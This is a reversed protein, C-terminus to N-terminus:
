TNAERRRQIIKEARKRRAENYEDQVDQIADPDASARAEEAQREFSAIVITSAVTDIEDTIDGADPTLVEVSDDSTTLEASPTGVDTSGETEM